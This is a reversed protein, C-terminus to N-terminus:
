GAGGPKRTRTPRPKDTLPARVALAAEIRALSAELGGIRHSLQEFEARSPLNAAALMRTSAETWAAQAQLGANQAGHMARSWGESRLAEGGVSNAMKEWEGLMARFFAAPDNTTMPPTDARRLRADLPSRNSRKPSTQQRAASAIPTLM